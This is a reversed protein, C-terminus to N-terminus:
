LLAKKQAANGLFTVGMLIVFSGWGLFLPFWFLFYLHRSATMLFPRQPRGDNLSCSHFAGIIGYQLSSTNHTHTLKMGLFFDRHQIDVDVDYSRIVMDVIQLM